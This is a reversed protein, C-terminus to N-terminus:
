YLEEKLATRYDKIEERNIKHEANKLLNLLYLLNEKDEVEIPYENGDEDEDYQAEVDFADNASLYEYTLRLVKTVLPDQEKLAVERLERLDEVLNPASIGKKEVKEVIADLKQNAEATKM